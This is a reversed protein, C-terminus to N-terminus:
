GSHLQVNSPLGVKARGCAVLAKFELDQQPKEFFYIEKDLALSYALELTSAKGVYDNENAIIIGKGIEIMHYYTGMDVIKKEVTDAPYYPVARPTIAKIGRSRLSLAINDILRECRKISGCVIWTESDVGDPLVTNKVFPHNSMIEKRRTFCM